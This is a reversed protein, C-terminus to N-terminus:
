PLYTALFNLLRDLWENKESEDDPNADDGSM